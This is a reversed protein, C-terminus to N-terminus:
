VKPKNLDVLSSLRAEKSVIGAVVVNPDHNELLEVLQETIATYLPKIDGWAVKDRLRNKLEPDVAFCIRVEESHSNNKPM